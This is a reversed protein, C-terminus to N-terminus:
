RGGGIFLLATSIEHREAVGLAAAGPELTERVIRLKDEVTRRRRRERRV